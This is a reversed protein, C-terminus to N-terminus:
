LTDTRGRAALVGNELLAEDFGATSPAKVSVAVKGAADALNARANGPPMCITGIPSSRFRSTAQRVTLPRSRNPALTPREKSRPREEPKPFDTRTITQRRRRQRPSTPFRPRCSSFAPISTSKMTPSPENSPSAPGTLKTAGLTTAHFPACLKEVFADFGAAGLIENLREYFPHGGGQPLDATAVWMSHQSGDDRTTGM